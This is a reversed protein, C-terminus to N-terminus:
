PQLLRLHPQDNTPPETKRRRWREEPTLRILNGERLATSLTQRWCSRAKALNEWTKTNRSMIKMDRKCVDMFSLHQQGHARRGSVLEGYLIDKPISGDPMRYVHGLSCLRRQKFLLPTSQQEQPYIQENNKLM